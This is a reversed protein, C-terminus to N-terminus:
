MKLLEYFNRIREESEMLALETRKKLTIDTLCGDVRILDGNEHFVPIKKDEVWKVNRDRTILRYEMAGAKRNAMFDFVQNEVRYLDDPHISDKWLNRSSKLEDPSFGLLEKCRNNIFIINFHTDLSYIVENITNLLSNIISSSSYSIETFLARTDENRKIIYVSGAIAGNLGRITISKQVVSVTKGDKGKVTMVKESLESASEDVSSNAIKGQADQMEIVQFFNKGKVEDLKYGTLIEAEPNFFLIKGSAETTIIADSVSNFACEFWTSQNKAAEM